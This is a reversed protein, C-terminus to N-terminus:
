RVILEDYVNPLEQKSKGGGEWESATKGITRFDGVGGGGHDDQAGVLVTIRWRANPKGLISDPLSFSIEKAATNGLPDAADGAAPIYSAIKKGTRDCVEIGGGVFVVRQYGREEPLTYDSNRSVDLTGDIGDGIAIAVFTLQFGYEPHWMPNVLNRFYLEFFVRGSDSSIKARTLDLIGKQFYQNLPYTYSGGPGRDDYTSDEAAALVTASRDMKKIDSLKLITFDSERLFSWSSDCKPTQFHLNDLTTDHLVFNKLNNVIFPVGNTDALITDATLTVNITDRGQFYFATRIHREGGVNGFIKFVTGVASDLPVISIQTNDNEVSYTVFYDQNQGSNMRFAVHHLGSPLHPTLTISGGPVDVQVGLYDEYLSKIYEALSWAQSFAGSEEPRDRGERPFADFLEPLTGATKGNLIENTLYSTCAYAFDQESELVLNSVLPGTLWPWVTGNHYAADPVYYPQDNHYPHFNTDGQFLTAVGWPYVLKEVTEKLIKARLTRDSLMWLSFLQNPRLSSDPSDDVNLHDYLRLGTTDIFRQNFNAIMRKAFETTAEFLQTDGAQRSLYRTALIEKLWDSQVDVARSGRPTYPGKPGVADMWTEQDGHVLFLDKGIHYGISGEFAKRIAPYVQFLLIRDGTMAYYMFVSYVFLPTGDATNYIVEKPTILNPIRGYNTSTSDLEQKAAFDLIIQRARKFDGIYLAAPLSIFSDRGWYDNFWPLGAWIGKMGQDSLLADFSLKAWAVAKDLREDGSSFYSKNLVEQMRNKRGAALERYDTSVLSLIHEVESRTRGCSVIFTVNRGKTKLFAPSVFPGSRDAHKVLDSKGGGLAIWRGYTGEPVSTNEFLVYKGKQVSFTRADVSNFLLRFEFKMEHPSQCQILLANFTDLMTFTEVVDSKYKRVLRDPFVTTAAESRDLSTGDATVSYDKLVPNDYVTWGQYPATNIGNAEGFYFGSEKNTYSYWKIQNEARIGLSEISLGHPSAGGLLLLALFCHM